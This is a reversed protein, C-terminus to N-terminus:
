HSCAILTVGHPKLSSQRAPQSALVSTIIWNPCGNIPSILWAAEANNCVKAWWLWGSICFNDESLCVIYRDPIILPRNSDDIFSHISSFRFFWYLKAEFLSQFPNDVSKPDIVLCASPVALCFWRLVFETQTFSRESSGRISPKILYHPNPINSFFFFVM